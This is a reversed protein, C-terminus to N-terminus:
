VFWASTNLYRAARGIFQAIRGIAFDAKTANRTSLTDAILPMVTSGYSNVASPTFLVHKFFPSETEAPGALFVRELGVVVDNFDRIALSSVGSARLKQGDPYGNALRAQAATRRASFDTASATMQQVQRSIFSFNAFSNSTNASYNGVWWAVKQAYNIPEFPIFNLDALRLAIDGILQTMARHGHYQPDAFHECWYLSDYNSHYVAEYAGDANYMGLDLIPVGALQIFPTHDSGSGPAAVSVGPWRDLLTRGGVEYLPAVQRMVAEFLPSGEAALADTGTVATDVNIYAVARQRLLEVQAEVYEVSGLLGWEEGGWSTLQISRRPRWGDIRRLEGLTRALELVISAGSIPDIAGYTWADRHSGVIVVRDPEVVGRMLGHVNAINRTILTRNVTVTVHYASPGIKGGMIDRFGTDTWGAPLATAGGLGRLVEMADGYGMPQVPISPLPNGAMKNADYLEFEKLLAPGDPESPWLPTRPDGDGTYVSGRQVTYNTAWPGAPFVPGKAFGVINPDHVIIVAAAGRRQALQVKNGRFIEGYRVVVIKGTLDIAAIADFDEQRGYNVWVVPATVTGNGSYGNSAPLATSYGSENLLNPEDLICRYRVNSADTGPHVLVDRSSLQELAVPIYDVRVDDFGYSRLYDATREALEINRTSGALHPLRSFETMFAKISDNSVLTAWKQRDDNAVRDNTIGFLEYFVDSQSDSGSSDSREQRLLVILALIVAAAAIAAVIAGIKWKSLAGVARRRTPSEPEAGEYFTDAM